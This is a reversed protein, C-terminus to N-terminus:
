KLKELLEKKKDEKISISKIWTSAEAAPVEIWKEDLYGEKKLGKLKKAITPKSIGLERSMEGLYSRTKKALFRIIRAMKKDFLVSVEEESGLAETRM